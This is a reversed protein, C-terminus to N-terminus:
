GVQTLAGSEVDFMFEGIEMGEPFFRCERLKKADDHLTAVQDTVTGFDIESADEGTHERILEEMKAQDVLAGGCNTHAILAIRDVDLVHAALILTRLVDDTVRAGANRLIKAEGPAMGFAAVPDIRTDMCTVIALRKRAHGTPLANHGPVYDANAQLVDKFPM